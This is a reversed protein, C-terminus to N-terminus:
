GGQILDIGQKIQNLAALADDLKANVAGLDTPIDAAPGPQAFGAPIQGDWIWGVVPPNEAKWENLSPADLREIINRFGPPATPVTSVNAVNLVTMNSLEVLAFRPM